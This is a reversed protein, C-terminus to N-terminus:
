LGLSKGASNKFGFISQVTQAGTSLNLFEAYGPRKKLGTALKNTEVNLADQAQCDSIAASNIADNLGCFSGLVISEAGAPAALTILLGLIASWM